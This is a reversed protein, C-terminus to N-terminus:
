APCKMSAPGAISRRSHGATACGGAPAPSPRWATCVAGILWAGVVALGSLVVGFSEQADAPEFRWHAPVFLAVVFVTSLAAPLLRIALVLGGRRGALTRLVYPAAGRVACSAVINIAAFWALGLLVVSVPPASM